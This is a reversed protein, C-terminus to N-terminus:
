SIEWEIGCVTMEFGCAKSFREAESITESKSPNAYIPWSSGDKLYLEFRWTKSTADWCVNVSKVNM